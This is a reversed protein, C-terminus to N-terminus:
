FWMKIPIEKFYASVGIPNYKTFSWCFLDLQKFEAGKIDCPKYHISIEALSCGQELHSYKSVDFILLIYLAGNTQIILQWHSLVWPACGTLPIAVFPHHFTLSGILTVLTGKEALILAPLWKM